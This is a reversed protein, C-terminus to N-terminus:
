DLRQASHILAYINRRRKAFNGYANGLHRHVYKKQNRGIFDIAPLLEQVFPSIRRRKGHLASEIRSLFTDAADSRKEADGSLLKPSTVYDRLISLYYRFPVDPMHDIEGTITSIHAHEFMETVEEPGKGFYIRRANRYDLNIISGNSSEDPPWDQATPVSMATQNVDPLYWM